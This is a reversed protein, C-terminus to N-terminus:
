IDSPKVIPTHKEDTDAHKRLTWYFWYSQLLFNGVVGVCVVLETYNDM